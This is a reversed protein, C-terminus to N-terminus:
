LALPAEYSDVTFGWTTAPSIQVRNAVGSTQKVESTLTLQQGPLIYAHPLMWNSRNPLTTVGVGLRVVYPSPNHVSLKGEKLSWVLRKWPAEDRALGAPRIIVPLNQRVTMRVVNGDKEQPPVGEFIVRKLHETKLPTKTTLMFRVRQTKGPEVRAAPPTIILLKEQDHEIDQLTTLLLVPFADTNKLNIAGEGDSGEVIVVSSEPLMGTAHANVSLLWLAAISAVCFTSFRM